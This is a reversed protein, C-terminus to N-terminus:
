RGVPANSVINDALSVISQQDANLPVNHRQRIDNVIDLLKGLVAVPNDGRLIDIARRVRESEMWRKLKQQQIIKSNKAHTARHRWETYHHEDWNMKEQRNEDSLQHNIKYLDSRLEFLRDQCNAITEPERFNQDFDINSSM